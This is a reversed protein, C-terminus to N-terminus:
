NTKTINKRYHENKLLRTKCHLMERDLEATRIWEQRLNENLKIINQRKTLQLTLQKVTKIPEKSMLLLMLYDWVLPYHRNRINDGKSNSKTIIQNWTNANKIRWKLKQKLTQSLKLKINTNYDHQKIPELESKTRQNANLIIKTKFNHM